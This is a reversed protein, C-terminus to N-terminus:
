SSSELWLEMQVDSRQYPSPLCKDKPLHRFGCSEYLRIASTLVHNTELWLRRVRRDRAWSIASNLLERGVGRRQFTEEVAMKIIEYTISDRVVIAVCGVAQVGHVALFVQGGAEVIYKYPDQLTARDKDELCFFKEIWSRNLREFAAEDGHQFERVFVGEDSRKKLSM